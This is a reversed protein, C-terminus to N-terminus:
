IHILSLSMAVRNYGEGEENAVDLLLGTSTSIPEQKEVADLFRRGRELSQAVEVDVVKDMYVRGNERRVNENYAGIWFGNLAEPDAASVYAGNVVPHGLPAHTREFTKYGAEIVDTPYKIGNMIVNDPLTASPVVIVDRGNRQERKIAANNVRHKINVRIQDAM